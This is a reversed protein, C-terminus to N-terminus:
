KILTFFGCLMWDGSHLLLLLAISYPAAAASCPQLLGAVALPFTVQNRHSTWCGFLKGVDLCVQTTYLSQQLQPQSQEKPIKRSLRRHLRRTVNGHNGLQVTAQVFQLLLAYSSRYVSPPFFSLQLSLKIQMTVTKSRSLLYRASAADNDLLELLPIHSPSSGVRASVEEERKVFGISIAFVM